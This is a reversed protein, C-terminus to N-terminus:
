GQSILTAAIVLKNKYTILVTEGSAAKPDVSTLLQYLTINPRPNGFIRIALAELAKQTTSSIHAAANRMTRLDELDSFIASLHPEYPYGEKFYMRAIKLVNKHNAYDFYKRVGIVLSRAASESPPLVYRVPSGGGTTPAGIMLNCLSRELFHEWAIFLNLFAAVTIQQRDIEPFIPFGAADVKHANAILSECQVVSAKFDGLAKAIPM